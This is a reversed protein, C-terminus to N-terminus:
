SGRDPVNPRAHIWRVTHDRTRDAVWSRALTSEPCFLHIARRLHIRHAAANAPIVDARTRVEQAPDLEPVGATVFAGDVLVVSNVDV